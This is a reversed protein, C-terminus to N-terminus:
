AADTEAPDIEGPLLDRAAGLDRLEGAIEAPAEFPKGPEVRKGDLLVVTVAVLAVAGDM